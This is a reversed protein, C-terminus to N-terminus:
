QLFCNGAPEQPNRRNGATEASKWYHYEVLARPRSFRPRRGKGRRLASPDRRVSSDKRRGQRAAPSWSVTPRGPRPACPAPLPHAHSMSRWRRTM